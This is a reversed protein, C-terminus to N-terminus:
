PVYFFAWKSHSRNQINLWDDSDAIRIRWRYTQGRKLVDRPVTHSVMNKLRRTAYVRGGNIEHIELRYFLPKEAKVAQWTFTPAASDIEDNNAPYFTSSDALPIKKVVYQYDFTTGRDAYGDIEFRYAGKKPIGPIKIWFDRLGPIYTFDEKEIPLKGLPGFVNISKIADPM